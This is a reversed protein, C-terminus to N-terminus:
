SFKCLELSCRGPSTCSLIVLTATHILSRLFCTATRFRNEHFKCPQHPDVWPHVRNNKFVIPGISNSIYPSILGFGTKRSEYLLYPPKQPFSKFVTNPVGNGVFFTINYENRDDSMGKGCFHGHGLSNNRATIKSFITTKKRFILLIFFIWIRM